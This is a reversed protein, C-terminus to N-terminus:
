FVDGDDPIPEVDAQQGDDDQDESDESGIAAKDGGAKEAVVEALKQASEEVVAIEQAPEEASVADLAGVVDPSLLDSHYNIIISYEYGVPLYVNSLEEVTLNIAKVTEAQAADIAEAAIEAVLADAELEDAAVADADQVDVPVALLTITADSYNENLISTLDIEAGVTVDTEVDELLERAGFATNLQVMRLNARGDTVPEYYFDIVNNSPSSGLQIEIPHSCEYFLGINPDGQRGWLGYITNFDITDGVNYVTEITGSWPESSNLWTDPTYESHSTHSSNTAVYYHIEVWAHNYEPYLVHIVNNPAAAVVYNANVQVGDDYMPYLHKRMNLVSADLNVTTGAYAQFTYDASEGFYGDPYVSAYYKVIVNIQPTHTSYTYYAVNATPVNTITPQGSLVGTAQFGPPCNATIFAAGATIASGFAASGTERSGVETMVGNIEAQYIITYAYTNAGPYLVYINNQAPDAGIASIGGSKIGDAYGTPQKANLVAATLITNVDQEFTGYGPEVGLYHATDGTNTVQDKYYYIRYEIHPDKDPFHVYLVNNNVNATIYKPGDTYATAQLYGPPVTTSNYVPVIEDGIKGTHTDDLYYVKTLDVVSGMIYYIKYATQGSTKFIVNVDNGSVGITTPGQIETLPVDYGSPMLSYDIPIATGYVGSDSRTAFSPGMMDDKWYTVTWPYSDKTDYLVTAINASPIATIYQAGGVRGPTKYGTPAYLTAVVPITNGLNGYGVVDSGPIKNAPTISDKYYEITYQINDAKPTYIVNVINQTDPVGITQASGPAIEGDYWDNDSGLKYKYLNKDVPIPNGYTGTSDFQDIYNAQNVSERYYRVYYKLGTLKYEYVVNIIQAPQSIVLSGYVNGPTQYGAPAHLNRDVTVATNIPVQATIHGLAEGIPKIGDQYYYIDYQVTIANDYVVNVVNDAAVLSIYKQGAPEQRGPGSYGQPLFLTLSPSIPDGVTGSGGITGLLQGGVQDKYYRVTYPIGTIKSDWVISVINNTPQVEEPGYWKPPNAYGDPVRDVLGLLVDPLQTLDTGVPAASSISAGIKNSSYIGDKYFSIIYAVQKKADFLVNVINDDPVLTITPQGSRVGPTVYNDPANATLSAPIPQGYAGRGYVIALETGVIIEDQYYRVEYTLSIKTDYVVNVVNGSQRFNTPGYATGPTLYGPPAEHSLDANIAEGLSGHKTISDLQTGGIADKWYTITATYDGKQDYVIYVVNNSVGITSASSPDITGPTVYGDPAFLTTNPIIPDGFIGRGLIRGLYTGTLSDQYYKVEYEIDDDKRDYLVSVINQAPDESIVTAGSVKGPGVYGPPLELYPNVSITDGFTGQGPLSYFAAVSLTDKYYNITYDVNTLKTTYVVYALNGTLGITAPAEVVGPTVYGRPAYMTDDIDVAKDVGFTDGYVANTGSDSGLYNDENVRNDKYYRIEYSIGGKKQDYVVKVVNDAEIITITPGGTIVVHDTYGAPIHGAVDVPITEGYYGKGTIIEPQSNTDGAYYEVVYNYEIRQNSNWLVYVVNESENVSIHTAGSRVGDGTYGTPWITLEAPIPAGFPLKSGTEEKWRNALTISGTYYWVTYGYTQKTTYVVNVVNTLGITDPGTVTAPGSYGPAVYDYEFDTKVITDGYTGYIDRTRYKNAEDISDTYYNITVKINEMKKTFVVNVINLSPEMTVTTASSSDRIGPPLYGEPANLDLNVEIPMGYYGNDFSDIRYPIGAVADRYYRIEYDIGSEPTTYIVYVKNDDELDLILNNAEIVVNTATYGYPINATNTEDVPIADLFIGVGPVTKTVNDKTDQCYYITYPIDNRKTNWVVDIINLAEDGRITFNAAYDSTNSGYPAIITFPLKYGDPPTMNFPIPAGETGVNSAVDYAENAVDDLHYSIKWSLGDNQRYFYNVVVNGYPMTGSVVGNVTMTVTPNPIALGEIDAVTITAHDFVYNQPPSPSVSVPDGIGYGVTSTTTTNQPSITQNVTVTLNPKYGVLVFYADNVSTLRVQWANGTIPVSNTMVDMLRFSTKEFQTGTQTFTQPVNGTYNKGIELIPIPPAGDTVYEDKIIVGSAKISSLSDSQLQAGSAAVPKGAANTAYYIIEISGGPFPLSPVPFDQRFWDDNDDQYTVTASDNTDYWSGPVFTGAAKIYFTFTALGPINDLTWTMVRGSSSVGTLAVPQDNVRLEWPYQASNPVIQWMPDVTDVITANKGGSVLSYGIQRFLAELGSADTDVNLNKDLSSAVTQIHLLDSASDALGIGVSYITAVTKAANIATMVAPAVAGNVAYENTNEPHGDSMFVIYAPRSQIEAPTRNTTIVDRAANLPNVYSTGGTASMSDIGAKVTAKGTTTYFQGGGLKVAAVDFTVLSVRFDSPIQVTQGYKDTYELPKYIENLFDNAASKALDIRQKCGHAASFFSTAYSATVLFRETISPFTYQNATDKRGTLEYRLIDRVYYNTQWDAAGFSPSMSTGGALYVRYGTIASGNHTTRFGSITYSVITSEDGNDGIHLSASITITDTVLGSPLFTTGGAAVSVQYQLPTIFTVDHYHDPNLCKGSSMSGSKDLVLVIDAGHALPVSNVTLKIQSYKNQGEDSDVWRASKDVDVAGPDPYSPFAGPNQDKTYPDNSSGNGAFAIISPTSLVLLMAMVFSLAKKFGSVHSTKM